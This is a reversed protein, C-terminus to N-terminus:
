KAKRSCPQPEPVSLGKLEAIASRVAPRRGVRICWRRVAPHASWPLGPLGRGERAWPFAAMDAITYEQDGLYAVGSLRTEMVGWLRRTEHCFRARPYDHEQGAHEVFHWAQGLVPGLSAVQWITWAMATWRRAPDEPLFLGTKEALYALIAGSEFLTVTTGAPGDTDVIAPTKNNPCLALFAPSFQEGASLNVHRLRHPLSMEQLAIVIKLNNPTNAAFVEIM